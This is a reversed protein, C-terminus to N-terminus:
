LCCMGPLSGSLRFSLTTWSARVWYGIGSWAFKRGQYALSGNLLDSISCKVLDGYLEKWFSWWFGITWGISSWPCVECETVLGEWGVVEAEQHYPFDALYSCFEEFLLDLFHVCHDCFHVQFAKHRDHGSWLVHGDLSKVFKIYRHPFRQGEEECVFTNCKM